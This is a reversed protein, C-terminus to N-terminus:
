GQSSFTSFLPLALFPSADFFQELFTLDRSHPKFHSMVPQYPRMYGSVTSIPHIVVSFARLTCCHEHIWTGSCRFHGCPFAVRDFNTSTICKDIMIRPLGWIACWCPDTLTNLTYTAVNDRYGELSNGCSKSTANQM